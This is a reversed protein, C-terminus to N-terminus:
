KEKASTAEERVKRCLEFYADTYEKRVNDEVFEGIVFKGKKEEPSAKEWLKLTMAHEKQWKLMQTPTKMDNLRGYLVPCQTIVEVMSFGRRSLAKKIYKGTPVIHYTSGRAVYTAGAAAALRAADFPEEITGYPATHAYSELPTTPSSQGGTMGYIYNNILIMTIDINRRCAHIFHNGGIALGDGDGSVVIVKMDPRVMKIGTAFGLARGHTTHLTNFDVYIPMRSSCGIGSVLAVNNKNIDLDQVARLIAGMVTGIGCGACWVTPFKKQLRLYRHISSITELEM